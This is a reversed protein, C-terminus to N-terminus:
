TYSYESQQRASMFRNPWHLIPKVSAPGDYCLTSACAFLSTMLDLYPKLNKLDDRSLSSVALAPLSM